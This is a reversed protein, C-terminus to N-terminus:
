QYIKYLYSYYYKIFIYVYIYKHIKSQKTNISYTNITILYTLLLILLLPM